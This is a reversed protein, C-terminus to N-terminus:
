ETAQVTGAFDRIHLFEDVPLVAIVGDGRIGSHITRAITNVVNDAKDTEIFVEIRASDNMLDSAYYNRYEGFGHSRSVTMGPVGLVLLAQEVKELDTHPFIATVKRYIM